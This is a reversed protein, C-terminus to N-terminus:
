VHAAEGGNATPKGPAKRKPGAILRKKLAAIIVAIFTQVRHKKMYAAMARQAAAAKEREENEVRKAAAEAIERDKVPRWAEINEKRINWKHGDGGAVVLNGTLTGTMKRIFDHDRVEVAKGSAMLLIYVGSTAKDPDEPPMATSLRPASPKKAQETKFGETIIM